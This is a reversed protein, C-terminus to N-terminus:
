TRPSTGKRKAATSAVQSLLLSEWKPHGEKMQNHLWLWGHVEADREHLNRGVHSRGFLRMKAAGAEKWQAGQLHCPTEYMTCLCRLVGILQSTAMNSFGQQESKWPYLRFMEVVVDDFRQQEFLQMFADMMWDFAEPSRVDWEKPVRLTSTSMDLKQEGNVLSISFRALGTNRSGPDVALMSTM